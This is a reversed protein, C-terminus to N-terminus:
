ARCIYKSEIRGAATPRRGAGVPVLVDAEEEALAPALREVEAAGGAQQGLQDQGVGVDGVAQAVGDLLQQLRAADLLLALDVMGLDAM